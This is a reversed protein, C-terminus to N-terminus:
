SDRAFLLLYRPSDEEDHAHPARVIQKVHAPWTDRKYIRRFLSPAPFDFLMARSGSWKGYTLARETGDVHVWQLTSLESTDPDFARGDPTELVETHQVGFSIFESLAHNNIRVLFPHAGTYYISLGARTRERTIIHLWQAFPDPIRLRCPPLKYQVSQNYTIGLADRTRRCACMAAVHLLVGLPLDM